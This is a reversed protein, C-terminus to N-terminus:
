PVNEVILIRVDPPQFGDQIIVVRSQSVSRQQGYGNREFQKVENFNLDAVLPENLLEIGAIVDDYSSAGYKKQITMLVSLTKQVNNGTQWLIPGRQGSNDFGNQSGPAGHLDIIVKLRCERAWAIAQDIYPAAGSAYPSGSNDYAWYGIPVRVVNFGAAAIQQLDSQQIWTDWHPKLVTDHATQTGLKECLTYEDVIGESIPHSQFISPTIWPELM